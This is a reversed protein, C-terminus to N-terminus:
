RRDEADCAARLRAMAHHVRSKVTGEPIGLHAATEAIPLRWFHHLTLLLRDKPELRRFARGLARHELERELAGDDAPEPVVDLEVVRGRRRAMRRAARVVHRRFWAGFAAPERLGDLGRWASLLADQVADAADAHSGTVIQAMGLAAPLSPEVLARFADRDGARAAEVLDIRRGTADLAAEMDMLADGGEIPEIKGHDHSAARPTSAVHPAIAPM